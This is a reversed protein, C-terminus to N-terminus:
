LGLDTNLGTAQPKDPEPQFEVKNMERMVDSRVRDEIAKILAAQDGEPPADPMALARMDKDQAARTQEYREVQEDPVDIEVEVLSMNPEQAMLANFGFVVGTERNRLMYQIVRAM